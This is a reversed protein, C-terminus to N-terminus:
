EICIGVFRRITNGHITGALRFDALLCMFFAGCSM